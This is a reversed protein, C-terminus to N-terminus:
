LVPKFSQAMQWFSFASYVFIKCKQFISRDFVGKWNDISIYQDNYTCDYMTCGNTMKKRTRFDLKTQKCTTM